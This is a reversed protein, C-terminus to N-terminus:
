EREIAAHGLDLTPFTRYADYTSTSGVHGRIIGLRGSFAREIRTVDWRGTAVTGFEVTVTAESVHEPLKAPHFVVRVPRRQADLAMTGDGHSEDRVTTRFAIVTEGGEARPAEFAYADVAESAYPLRMGFRSLPGDPKASARELADGGAARGGEALQLVRKRSPKGDVVVYAAKELDDRHYPGGRVQTRTTVDFVVVGRAAAAHSEAVGRVLAAADDPRVAPAAGALALLLVAGCAAARYARAIAHHFIV